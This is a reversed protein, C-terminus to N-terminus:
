YDGDAVQLVRLGLSRWMKVVSARDELVFEIDFDGFIYKNYLEEKVVYDHRYDGTRRMLLTFDDFLDINTNIWNRTEDYISEPRGTIFVIVAGANWLTKVLTCMERIPADDVCSSHFKGWDKKLQRDAESEGGIRPTIYHLRHTLDAVTGDIDVIIAKQKGM